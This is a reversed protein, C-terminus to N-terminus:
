WWGAGSMPRRKVPPPEEPTPKGCPGRVITWKGVSGAELTRYMRIREGGLCRWLFGEENGTDLQYCENPPVSPAGKVKSPREGCGGLVPSLLAAAAVATLRPLRM